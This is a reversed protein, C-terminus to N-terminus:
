GRFHAWHHRRTTLPRATILEGCMLGNVHRGGRLSGKHESRIVARGEWIFVKCTGCTPPPRVHVCLTSDPLGLNLIKYPTKCLGLAENILGEIIYGVERRHCM